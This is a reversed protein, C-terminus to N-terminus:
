QKLYKEGKETLKPFKSPAAFGLEKEHFRTKYWPSLRYEVGVYAIGTELQLLGKQLFKKLTRRVFKEEEPLFCNKAIKNRLTQEHGFWSHIDLSHKGDRRGPRIETITFERDERKAIESYRPARLIKFDEFEKHRSLIDLASITRTKGKFQSKLLEEIKLQEKLLAQALKAESAKLVPATESVVSTFAINKTKTTKTKYNNPQSFNISQLKIM